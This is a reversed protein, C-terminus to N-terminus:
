RSSRYAFSLLSFTFRIYESFKNALFKVTHPGIRLWLTTIWYGSLMFFLAVGLQGVLLSSFHSVLVLTALFLRFGGPKLIFRDMGSSKTATQRVPSETESFLM